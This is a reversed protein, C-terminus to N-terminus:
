RRRTVSSEADALARSIRGLAAILVDTEADRLHRAFHQEISRAYVPWAQEVAARGADTLVAFAGRRDGPVPQRSLLGAGELHDVLRSLSSKSLVVAEALESMRLRGERAQALEVLVDYWGLPLVGAADMDRAIRDLLATATSLFPRWANRRVPRTETDM